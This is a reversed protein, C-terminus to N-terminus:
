DLLCDWILGALQHCGICLMVGGALFELIM